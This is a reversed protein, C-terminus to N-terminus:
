LVGQRALPTDVDSLWGKHSHYWILVVFPINILNVLLCSVAIGVAAFYKGLILVLVASLGGQVLAQVLFPERKHARLYLSMPILPVNLVQALFFIGASLPPLFRLAFPIHFFNLLYIFFWCMFALTISAVAVIKTLRWFLLDLEKYDKRAILSGFRPSKATTWIVSISAIAEFLMLTMGTQGALIPGHFYFMAPTFISVALYGNIWCIASRWQLPWIERMWDINKESPPSSFMKIFNFYRRYLFIGGVVIRVATALVPAWLAWGNIIALLLAVNFFISDLFRYFNVQAVQHCGNLLSWIPLLIFNLGTLICLILWPALWVVESNNNKFFFSFGALSLAISIVPGVVVFWKIALRGLSVLRSLANPDGVVFGSDDFKLKSWEHSTFMLIVQGLGLEGFVQLAVLSGFTYYYGQLEPSFNAAISLMTLPTVIFLSIRTLGGWFVAPDVKHFVHKLYNSLLM